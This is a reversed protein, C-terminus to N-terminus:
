YGEQEKKHKDSKLESNPCISQNNRIVPNQSHYKDNVQEIVQSTLVLYMYVTILVYVHIIYVYMNMVNILLTSLLDTYSM